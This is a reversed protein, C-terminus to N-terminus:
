GKNPIKSLVVLYPNDTLLVISKKIFQLDRIRYELVIPESFIIRNDVFKLHYLTSAKLSGMLLDNDWDPDFGSVELISSPAVSPVFSFLPETFEIGSPITLGDAYKEFTGYRTGYSVFPWGYNKGEQIINIEDGGQPGHESALLQGSRLLTLGQPNRHGMSFVHFSNDKLDLYNVKGWPLTKNQPAIDSPLGNLRDLSYDGVTFYLRKTERDLALKGGSGWTFYPVDLFPSDYIVNWKKDGDKIKLVRFRAKDEVPDYFDVTSYFYGDSYILDHLRPPTEKVQLFKSEEFAKRNLKIRPLRKPTISKEDWNIQFFNAEASGLVANEVGVVAIAGGSGAMGPLKYVTQKLDFYATTIVNQKIKKLALDPPPNAASQGCGVLCLCM